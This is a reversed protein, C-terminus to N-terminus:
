RRAGQDAQASQAALPVFFVEGTSADFVKFVAGTLGTFRFVSRGMSYAGEPSCGCDFQASSGAALDLVLLKGTGEPIVIHQNDASLGVGVPLMWDGEYLTSPTAAAGVGAISFVRTNTAVALDQRGGFFALSVARQRSPLTLPTAQGQPGFLWIGEVWAGAAYQGDDSVALTHPIGSLFSTDATRVTPANPLGTVIQLRGTASFWLLAASGRPSLLVRDPKSDAGAIASITGAPSALLVAGSDAASVVAFDQHPSVAINAFDRGFNAAPGISASAPIGYVPRLHAGDPLYGFLPGEVQAWMPACALMIVLGARRM